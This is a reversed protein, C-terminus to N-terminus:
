RQLSSDVLYSLVQHRPADHLRPVNLFLLHHPTSPLPKVLRVLIDVRSSQKQSGARQKPEAICDIEGTAGIIPNRAAIMGM